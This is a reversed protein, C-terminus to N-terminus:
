SVLLSSSLIIRASMIEFIVDDLQHARVRIEFIVDRDGGQHAVQGPPMQNSWESRRHLPSVRSATPLVHELQDSLPSHSCVHKSTCDRAVSLM